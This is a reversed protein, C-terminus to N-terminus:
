RANVVKDMFHRIVNKWAPKDKIWAAFREGFKRYTWRLWSPAETLLWERFVLWKPSSEGYVERAVWCGMIGSAVAGVIKGTGQGIGAGQNKAVYANQRNQDTAFANNIFAGGLTNANAVGPTQVGLYNQQGFNPLVTRRTAISGADLGSRLSNTTNSRLNVLNNYEARRGAQRDGFTMANSLGQMPSPNSWNTRGLGRAIGEEEGKSLQNPDNGMANFATDLESMLKERNQFFEPDVSKQLELTKAVSEAGPGNLIDLETQAAGLQEDASLERGIKSAERGSTDLLDTSLKNLEPSYAKAIDVEAKAQPDYQERIKEMLGPMYATAAQLIEQISEDTNDIRGKGSGFVDM